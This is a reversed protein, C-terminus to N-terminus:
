HGKSQLRMLIKLSLCVFYILFEQDSRDALTCSVQLRAREGAACAVFSILPLYTGGDASSNTRATQFPLFLKGRVLGVETIM